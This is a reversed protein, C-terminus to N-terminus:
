AVEGTVPHKVKKKKKAKIAQNQNIRFIMGESNEYETLGRERMRDLLKMTVDHFKENLQRKQIRTDHFDNAADEVAPIIDPETGPLHGQKLNARETVPPKKERPKKPAKKSKVTV